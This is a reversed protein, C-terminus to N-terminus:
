YHGSGGGTAESRAQPNLTATVLDSVLNALVFVVSIVLIVAQIVPVDRAIIANYMLLGVGPWQFIVEAFLASGFIFGVQLGSINVLMPLLSRLGHRFVLRSESVGRARAARIYDTSMVDILSARTLRFIVALSVLSASFAPLPVHWLLDVLSGERGLSYMGTAPFWQLELSFIWLLLLAFWFTPSSSVVLAAITSVRDFLSHRRIGALLGGLGGLGVAFLSAFFTLVITNFVRTWLVDAVAMQMAISRGLDGTLANGLWLLYQQWVPLDLGYYIRMAEQSEETAFPGLLTLTIDGPVLRLLMFSCLSVGFLVPATALLRLVVFHKM